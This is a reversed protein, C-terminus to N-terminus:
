KKMRMAMKCIGALILVAGLFTSWTVVSWYANALVLLGILVLGGGMGKHMHGHCCEEKEEKVERRRKAM